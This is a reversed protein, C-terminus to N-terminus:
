PVAPTPADAVPAAKATASLVGTLRVKRGDNDVSDVYYFYTQGAEVAADPYAYSGGESVRVIAPNLRVFPGGRDTSRYVIYGFARDEATAKWRVTVLGREGAGAAMAVLLLLVLGLARM